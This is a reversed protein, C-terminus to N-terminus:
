LKKFPYKLFDFSTRWERGRMEKSLEGMQSAYHLWKANDEELKISGVLEDIQMALHEIHQQNLKQLTSESHPQLDPFQLKVRYYDRCLKELRKFSFDDILTQLSEKDEHTLLIRRIVQRALQSAVSSNIVTFSPDLELFSGYQRLYQDLIGHITSIKLVSSSNVFELLKQDKKLALLVLREKLEQTAKKTFTTVVIRPYRAHIKRYERAVNLVHETLATTKGAGAGARVIVSRELNIEDISESTPSSM